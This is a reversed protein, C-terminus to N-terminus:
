LWEKFYPLTSLEAHLADLSANNIITVDVSIGDQETESVHYDVEGTDRVIRVLVFGEKRLAQAENAFRVDTVVIPAAGPARDVRELLEQVWTDEGLMERVGVGLAQLVRRIEPFKEKAEDYGCESLAKEYRWDFWGVWPNIKAALERLPDAFAMREYGFEGALFRAATDKGVRKRGVLGIHPYM